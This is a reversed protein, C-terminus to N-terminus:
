MSNFCIIFCQLSYIYLCSSFFCFYYFWLFRILRSLAIMEVEQQQRKLRANEEMLHEVKQELENTYAQLILSLRYSNRLKLFFSFFNFVVYM